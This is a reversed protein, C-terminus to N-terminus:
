RTLRIRYSPGTLVAPADYFEWVFRLSRSWVFPETSVVLVLHPSCTTRCHTAAIIEGPASEVSGGASCARVIVPGQECPAPAKSPFVIRKPHSFCLRFIRTTWQSDFFAMWEPGVDTLHTADGLVM